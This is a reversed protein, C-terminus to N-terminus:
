ELFGGLLFIHVFIHLKKSKALTDVVKKLILLVYSCM